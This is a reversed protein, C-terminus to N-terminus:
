KLRWSLEHELRKQVTQVFDKQMIEKSKALTFLRQASPGRLENIQQKMKGAYRGRTMKKKAGIRYFIGVHGSQMMAVFTGPNGGPGRYGRRYGRLVDATADTVRRRMGLQIPSRPLGNFKYLPIGKYSFELQVIKAVEDIKGVRARSHM